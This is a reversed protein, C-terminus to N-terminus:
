NNVSVSETKMASNNNFSCRLFRFPIVDRMKRKRVMNFTIYEIRKVTHFNLIPPFPSWRPMKECKMFNNFYLLLRLKM